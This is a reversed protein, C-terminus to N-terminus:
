ISYMHLMFGMGFTNKKLPGEVGQDQVRADERERVRKGLVAKLLDELHVVEAVEVEGLQQRGEHDLRDRGADDDDACLRM